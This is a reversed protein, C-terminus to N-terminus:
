KNEIYNRKIKNNNKNIIIPTKPALQAEIARLRQERESLYNDEDASGAMFTGTRTLVGEIDPLSPSIRLGPTTQMATFIQASKADMVIRDGITQFPLQYQIPIVVGTPRQELLNALANFVTSCKVCRIMGMASRLTDSTVRYATTCQQNSCHTFM